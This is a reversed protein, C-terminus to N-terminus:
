CYFSHVLMCRGNLFSTSTDPKCLKIMTSGEERTAIILLAIIWRKYAFFIFQYGEFVLEWWAKPSGFYQISAFLLCRSYRSVHFNLEAHFLQDPCCLELKLAALTNRSDCCTLFYVVCDRSFSFRCFVRPRFAPSSANLVLEQASFAGRALAPNSWVEEAFLCSACATSDDLVQHQPAAGGCDSSPLSVTPLSAVVASFNFNCAAKGHCHQSM